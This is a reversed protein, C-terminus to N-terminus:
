KQCRIHYTAMQSPPIVTTEACFILANLDHIPETEAFPEGNSTLYLSDDPMWYIGLHYAKQFNLGLIMDQSLQDSCLFPFTFEVGAIEFTIDCEGKNTIFTGNAARIRIQSLFLETKYKPHLRNYCKYSIACRCAGSDWLAKQDRKGILTIVVCENQSKRGIHVIDTENDSNVIKEDTNICNEVKNVHYNELIPNHRSNTKSMNNGGLNEPM